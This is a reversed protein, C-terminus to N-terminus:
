EDSRTDMKCGVNDVFNVTTEGKIRMDRNFAPTKFLRGLERHIINWEKYGFTIWTVFMAFEYIVEYLHQDRHIKSARLSLSQMNSVYM